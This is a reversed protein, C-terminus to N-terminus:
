CSVAAKVNTQYVRTKQRFKLNNDREVLSAKCCVAMLFQLSSFNPQKSQLFFEPPFYFYIISFIIFSFTSYKNFGNLWNLADQQM